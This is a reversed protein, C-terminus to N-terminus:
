KDRRLVRGDADMFYGGIPIRKFISEALEDNQPLKVVPFQENMFVNNPINKVIDISKTSEPLQLPQYDINAGYDISELGASKRALNLRDARQQMGRANIQRLEAMASMQSEYTDAAQFENAARQADGETQVGKNLRLSENVLRTKFNEYRNLDALQQKQDDSLFKSGAGQMKRLFAKEYFGTPITGDMFQKMFQDTETALNKSTDILETEALEAKGLYSPMEPKDAVFKLHTPDQTAQYNKIDESTTKSFDIKTPDVKAFPSNSQKGLAATLTKDRLVSSLGMNYINQGAGLGQLGAQALYPFPSGANRNKPQAFYSLAATLGAQKMAQNQLMKSQDPTLLSDAVGGGFINMSDDLLGYLM